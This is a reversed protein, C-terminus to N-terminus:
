TPLAWDTVDDIGKGALENRATHAKRALVMLDSKIEYNVVPEGNFKSKYRSIRRNLANGFHYREVSELDPDELIDTLIEWHLLSNVSVGEYNAKTGGQWFIADGNAHLLTIGSLFEGDPGRAVYVKANDGLRTAVSRAFSRPTPYALGQAAHRDKLEGCIREAAAAGETTIAVALEDGKRIEKRLDRTFSQLVSEADRDALELVHNFRPEVNHDSWLYPRPDGYKPSGVIGFLTRFKGADVADLAAETFQENLKERKRQKPSTPLLVPGLWPVALGPPPSIVFRFPYMTRVFVPLLGVPQQGRFGGLLQMDGAEHEDILALMEPQHFPGVGSDPLLDGWEDLSLRRIEM